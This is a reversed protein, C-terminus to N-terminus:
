ANRNEEKIRKIYIVEDHTYDPCPLGYDVLKYAKLRAQDLNDAEVMINYVATIEIGVKLKTM